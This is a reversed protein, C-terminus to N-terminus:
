GGAGLSTVGRGSGELDVHQKLLLSDPLVYQGPLVKILYPNTVTNTTISNAAAVPDTFDGRGDQSVVIVNAYRRQYAILDSAAAFDTAHKGDVTDANLGTSSILAAPLPGTIKAATVAGNALAATGVASSAVKSATVAGDQIHGTKVGSGTTLTQGTTGDAPKISISVVTNAAVNAASGAAPLLAIVAVLAAALSKLLM